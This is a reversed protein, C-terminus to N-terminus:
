VNQVSPTEREWEGPVEKTIFIKGKAQFLPRHLGCAQSGFLSARM